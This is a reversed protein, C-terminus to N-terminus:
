VSEAAVDLAPKSQVVNTVVVSHSARGRATLHPNIELGKVFCCCIARFGARNALCFGWSVSCAFVGVAGPALYMWAYWNQGFPQFVQCLPGWLLMFLTFVITSVQFLVLMWYKSPELAAHAWSNGVPLFHVGNTLRQYFNSRGFDVDNLKLKLRTRAAEWIDNQGSLDLRKLGGIGNQLRDAAADTLLDYGAAQWDKRTCLISIPAMPPVNLCCVSNQDSATPTYYPPGRVELEELSALNTQLAGVIAAFGSDGIGPKNRNLKLSRLSSLAPGLKSIFHKMADSDILQDSLDLEKLELKCLVNDVLYALADTGMREGDYIEYNKM